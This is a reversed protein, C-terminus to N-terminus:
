PFQGALREPDGGWTVAVVEAPDIVVRGTERELHILGDPHLEVGTLKCRRRPWAVCGLIRM